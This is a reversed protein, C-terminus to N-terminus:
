PTGCNPDHGAITVGGADEWCEYECISCIRTSCSNDCYTNFQHHSLPSAPTCPACENQQCVCVSNPYMTHARVYVNADTGLDVMSCAVDGQQHRIVWDEIFKVPLGGTSSCNGCKRCANTTVLECIKSLLEVALQQAESGELGTTIMLLNCIDKQSTPTNYQLATTQKRLENCLQTNTMTAQCQKCM